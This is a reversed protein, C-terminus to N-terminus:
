MMIAIGRVCTFVLFRFGQAISDFWEFWKGVSTRRFRRWCSEWSKMSAKVVEGFNWALLRSKPALSGHCFGLTKEKKVNSKKGKGV